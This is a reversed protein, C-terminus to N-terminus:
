GGTKFVDKLRHSLLGYAKGILYIGHSGAMAAVLGDPLHPFARPNHIVQMLYWVAVFLTALLAQARGASPAASFGSGDSSNADYVDAELLGDLPIGGTLLKWFVVGFLGGLLIAVEWFALHVLSNM